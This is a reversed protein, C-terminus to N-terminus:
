KCFTDNENKLRDLQTNNMYLQEQIVDNKNTLENNNLLSYMHKNISTKEEVSTNEEVPTNEEVNTKEKDLPPFEIISSEINTSENTYHEEINKDKMYIDSYQKNKKSIYVFYLVIILLILTNDNNFLVLYLLVLLFIFSVSKPFNKCLNFINTTQYIVIFLVLILYMQININMININM